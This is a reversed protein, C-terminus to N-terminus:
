IPEGMRLLHALIGLFIYDGLLELINAVSGGMIMTWDFIPTDGIPDNGKLFNAM